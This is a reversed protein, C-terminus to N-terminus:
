TNKNPWEVVFTITTIIFIIRSNGASELFYGDVNSIAFSILWLQLPYRHIRAGPIEDENDTLSTLPGM